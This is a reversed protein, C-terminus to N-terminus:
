LVELYQCSARLVRAVCNKFSRISSWPRQTWRYDLRTQLTLYSCLYIDPYMLTLAVGLLRQWVTRLFSRVQIAPDEVSTSLHTIRVQTRLYAIAHSVASFAPTTAPREQGIKHWLDMVIYALNRGYTGTAAIEAWHQVPPQPPGVRQGLQAFNGNLFESLGATSPDGHNFLNSGRVRELVHRWETQAETTRMQIRQLWLGNRDNPPLIWLIDELAVKDFELRMRDQDNPLEHSRVTKLILLFAAAIISATTLRQQGDVVVHRTFNRVNMFPVEQAHIAEISAQAGNMERTTATIIQGVFHAAELPIVQAHGQMPVNNRIQMFRRETGSAIWASELLNVARHGDWCYKRQYAPIVFYNNTEALTSM